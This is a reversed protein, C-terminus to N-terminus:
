SESPAGGHGLQLPQVAPMVRPRDYHGVGGPPAQDPRTARRAKPLHWCYAHYAAGKITIGSFMAVPRGCELCNKGSDAM